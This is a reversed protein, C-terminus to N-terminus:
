GLWNCPINIGSDRLNEKERTGGTAQKLTTNGHKGTTEDDDAKSSLHSTRMREVLGRGWNKVWGELSDVGRIKSQKQKKKM